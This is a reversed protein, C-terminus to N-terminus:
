GQNSLVDREVMEALEVVLPASACLSCIQRQAVGYSTFERCTCRPEPKPQDIM